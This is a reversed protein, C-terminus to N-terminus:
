IPSFTATWAETSETGAASGRGPQAALHADQVDTPKQDAAQIPGTSVQAGRLWKVHGDCFLFNSAQTHRGGPALYNGSAGTTLNAARFGASGGLFGTALPLTCSNGNAGTPMFVAALEGDSAPSGTLCGGTGAGVNGAEDPTTLDAVAQADGPFAAATSECLMVTKAPANLMPLAGAVGYGGKGSLNMNYSYSIPSLRATGNTIPSATDDPCAFVGASRVFPYIRGAWGDGRGLNGRGASVGMPLQEDSDQAYQTLALGLQKLNSQCAARRANERVNQFVPFLIAALIAIIAIVVLLEILTFGNRTNRRM